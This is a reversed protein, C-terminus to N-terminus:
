GGVIEEARGEVKGAVDTHGEVEERIVDLCGKELNITEAPTRVKDQKGPAEANGFGVGGGEDVPESAKLGLDFREDATGEKGFGGEFAVEGEIAISEKRQALVGRPDYGGGSCVSLANSVEFCHLNIGRKYYIEMLLRM